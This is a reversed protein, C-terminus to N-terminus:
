QEKNFNHIRQKIKANVVQHLCERAGSFNKNNVNQILGTIYKISEDLKKKTNKVKMHKGKM